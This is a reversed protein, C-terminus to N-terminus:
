CLMISTNTATDLKGVVDKTIDVTASFIYDVKVKDTATSTASATKIQYRTADVFLFGAPPAVPPAVPSTNRKVTITNSNPLPLTSKSKSSAPSRNHPSQAITSLLDTNNDSVSATFLIDTKSNGAPTVIAKDFTGTSRELSTLQAQLLPRQSGIVPCSSFMRGADEGEDEASATAVPVFIGWEGNM